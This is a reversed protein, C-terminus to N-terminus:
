FLEGSPTSELECPLLRALVSPLIDGLRRAGAGRKKAARTLEESLPLAEEAHLGRPLGDVAKRLASLTEDPPIKHQDYFRILKGLIYDRQRSCPHQYALGGAVMRYAIRCFRGGVRVHIQPKPAGSAVWVATRARFHENRRMLTDATRLIASRLRRNGRRVLPGDKRDVPGSQYRSPVLGARGTISRGGAYGEIPGMEAALEAATTVNVGPMSLLVLYPTEVLLAALRVEAAAIQRRKGAFDDLLEVLIAQRIGSDGDGGAATEAWAVIRELTSPQCRVKAERTARRLGSVRAERVRAAEGFRRILFLGVDSSFVDHFLDAFGPMLSHLQELIQCRLRSTKGVLDRRHRAWIRMRAYVDPLPPIALGYGTVVARHIAELDIDDTKTGAHAARRQAHTALPDVIRVEWGAEVLVRKVALHYRGTREIAVVLDGLRYAECARRATAVLAELDRARHAVTRPAVLLRECFDALRWRSERKACDVALIGFREPGVAQVRHGLGEGRPPALAVGSGRRGRRGSVRLRAM